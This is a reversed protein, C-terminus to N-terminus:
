LPSDNLVAVSSIRRIRFSGEVHVPAKHLGTILERYLGGLQNDGWGPLTTNDPDRSTFEFSIDRTVDLSERKPAEYRDDLNNHDPHYRHVFPNLPDDYGLAVRCSFVGNTNGFEATRQVLLPERFSFAASSIRRGTPVGDRLTSGSFRPLLADDTILAYRGPVVTEQFGQLNTAAVGNTWTVVVKQLLRTDGAADVHLLIRFQFESAAPVPVESVAAQSVNSIVVSGVWLGARPDISQSGDAARTLASRGLQRNASSAQYSKLGDATVPILQRSGLSDTLELVSQYHADSYGPPLTLQNTMAARRVALRLTWEGGPPIAPSALTATLPVWEFIRNTPISRYFALAVPGALAPSGTSVPTESPLQRLNFTAATTAANRITLTQEVTTRGYDMGRGSEFQIRSPGTYTSAGACRVWYCEGRVMLTNSPSIVREWTGASNLRYIPQGNQAPSGSFFAQFTPPQTASTPFGVLNFSDPVWDIPRPVPRGRVTLTTAGTTKILYARGGNLTHLSVASRHPSTPPLYTLWDPQGPLLTNPDSVFQVPSFRKNWAWVSEIPQPGFVEDCEAPEPQVEIFVANWGARLNLTQTVWQASAPSATLFTMGMWLALRHTKL